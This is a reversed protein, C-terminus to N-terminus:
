KASTNTSINKTSIATALLSSVMQEHARRFLGEFLTPPREYEDFDLGIRFRTVLWPAHVYNM